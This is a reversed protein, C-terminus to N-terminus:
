INPPLIQPEPESVFKLPLNQPWAGGAVQYPLGVQSCPVSPRAWSESTLLMFRTRSDKVEATMGCKTM